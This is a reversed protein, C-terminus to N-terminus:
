AHSVGRGLRDFEEIPQRVDKLFLKCGLWKSLLFMDYFSFADCVERPDLIEDEIKFIYARIGRDIAKYHDVSQKVRDKRIFIEVRPHDKFRKIFTLREDGVDFFCRITFNPDKELKDAVAKIFAECDYLSGETFDGVDFIELDEEAGDILSLVLLVEKEKRYGRVPVTRYQMCRRTMIVSAMPTVWFVWLATVAHAVVQSVTRLIGEEM